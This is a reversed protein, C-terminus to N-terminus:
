QCICLASRIKQITVSYAEKTCILGHVPRMRKTRLKTGDIDMSGKGSVKEDFRLSAKIRYLNRLGLMDIPNLNQVINLKKRFLLIKKM